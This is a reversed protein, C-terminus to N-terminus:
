VFVWLLVAFSRCPIGVGVKTGIDDYEGIAVHGQDSVNLGLGDQSFHCIVVVGELGGGDAGCAPQSVGSGRVQLAQRGRRKLNQPPLPKNQKM